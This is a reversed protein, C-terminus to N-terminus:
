GRKNRLDTGEEGNRINGGANLIVVNAKGWVLAFVDKLFWFTSMKNGQKFDMKAAKPLNSPSDKQIFNLSKFGAGVANRLEAEVM